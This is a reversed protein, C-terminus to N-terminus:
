AAESVEVFVRTGLIKRVREATSSTLRSGATALLIGTESRLDRVLVMGETLRAAPVHVNKRKRVEVIWGLYGHGTCVRSLHESREALGYLDNTPSGTTLIFRDDAVAHKVAGGAVNALERLMDDRAADTVSAEDLLKSGLWTLADADAIISVRLEQERSALSMTISGARFAPNEHLSTAGFVISQGITQVLANSVALPLNQWSPLERFSFTDCTESRARRTAQVRARLEEAVFPRRIIEDAGAAILASIESGSDVAVVLLSTPYKESLQRVAELQAHGHYAVVIANPSGDGPGLIALTGRAFRVSHSVTGLARGISEQEAQEGFVLIQM